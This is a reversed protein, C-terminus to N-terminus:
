HLGRGAANESLPDDPREPPHVIRHVIFRVHERDIERDLRKPAAKVAMPDQSKAIIRVDDGDHGAFLLAASPEAIKLSM